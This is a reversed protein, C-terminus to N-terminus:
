AHRAQDWRARHAGCPTSIAPLTSHVLRDGELKENVRDLIDPLGRQAELHDVGNMLLLHDVHSIARWGTACALHHLALAEDTDEPFRQANNYWFAMLSALVTSGDPSEWFFEMKRDSALQLGRGFIANDIGFGQLIQPMQSINGFQDPLYGVKM